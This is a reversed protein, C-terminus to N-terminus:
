PAASSSWTVEPRPARPRDEPVIIATDTRTIMATRAIMTPMMYRASGAFDSGLMRPVMVWGADRALACRVKRPQVARAAPTIQRTAAQNTLLIPLDERLHAVM